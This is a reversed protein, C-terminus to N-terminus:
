KKKKTEFRDNMLDIIKYIVSNDNWELNKLDALILLTYDIYKNELMDKSTELGYNNTKM